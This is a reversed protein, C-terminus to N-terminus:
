GRLLIFVNEIVSEIIATPARGILKARRVRWDFSTIQDSLVTGEVALGKPLQVALPYGKVRSTIPCVLALGAARNYQAPTLVLAPRRKMPERGAQPEFDMWVFDGRNPAIRDVM